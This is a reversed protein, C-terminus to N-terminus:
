VPDETNVLDKTLHIRMLIAKFIANLCRTARAHGEPNVIRFHVDLTAKVLLDKVAARHMAADDFSMQLTWEPVAPIRLLASLLDHDNDNM